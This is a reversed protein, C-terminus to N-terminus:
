REMNMKFQIIPKTEIIRAGSNPKSEIKAKVSVDFIHMNFFLSDDKIKVEDIPLVEEGNILNITYNNKTKLVEFNFPIKNEQAIIEGRWIGTKLENIPKQKDCSIFILTIFLLTLTKTLDM